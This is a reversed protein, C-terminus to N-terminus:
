IDLNNILDDLDEDPIDDIQVVDSDNEKHIITPSDDIKFIESSINNIIENTQKNLLNNSHDKIENLIITTDNIPKTEIPTLDIEEIPKPQIPKEITITNNVVINENSKKCQKELWKQKKTEIVEHRIKLFTRIAVIEDSTYYGSELDIIEKITNSNEFLKRLVEDKVVYRNAVDLVNEYKDNIKKNKILCNYVVIPSNPDNKIQKLIYPFLKVRKGNIIRTGFLKEFVEKPIQFCNNFVKNNISDIDNFIKKSLSQKKNLYSKLSGYFPKNNGNKYTVITNITNYHIIKLYLDIYDDNSSINKLKTNKSM